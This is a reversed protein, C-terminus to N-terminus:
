KDEKQFWSRTNWLNPTTPPTGWSSKVPAPDERPTINVVVGLTKRQVEWSSCGTEDCIYKTKIFRHKEGKVVGFKPHDKRAVVVKNVFTSVWYGDEYYYGNDALHGRVLGDDDFYGNDAMVERYHDWAMSM